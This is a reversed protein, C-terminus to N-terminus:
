PTRPGPSRLRKTAGLGAHESPSVSPGVVAAASARRKSEDIEDLAQLAAEVDGPLRRRRALARPIRPLASRLGARSAVGGRLAGIM